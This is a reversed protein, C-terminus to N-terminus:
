SAGHGNSEERAVEDLHERQRLGLYVAGGILSWILFGAYALLSLSLAKTADIHMPAVSLVLVYLNERVGLGSPTVPLSSICIITPVMLYLVQAPIVLKLGQALVMVQWVCAMNLLTSVLLSKVLFRPERGFRRCADLSRELYEGKPMKRLWERARPLTRSVGGWFAVVVVGTCALTMGAVLAAMVKLSRHSLILDLNPLMMVCAFWLMSFLGILRDVFVTVVAETKQHHTERATYYAKLLDGGTSGLLFSNFFQAVLSISSARSFPLSLGVVNLVMRWRIIGFLLTLGMLLLSVFFADATVINLKQWLEIPGLSWGIRWQELRGLTDWPLGQARWILRGENVFICHFVWLLLLGCVGLRWFLAGKKPAANM